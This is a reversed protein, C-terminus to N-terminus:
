SRVTKFIQRAGITLVALGIMSAGIIRKTSVVEHLFLLGLIYCIPVEATNILVGPGAKCRQLGTTLTIQSVFALLAGIVIATGDWGYDHIQAPSIAGGFFVSVICSCVALSFISTMFHFTTGLSRIITYGTAALFAALCALASGLIRNAFPVVLTATSLVDSADPRSILFAGIVALPVAGIDVIHVHERLTFYSLITTFAPCLFFIATADGVPILALANYLSIICFAGCIGRVAIMATQHRTMSFVARRVTPFPLVYALSFILHIVSRVFLTSSAPFQSVTQAHHIFLNGIGFLVATLLMLAYGLLEASRAKQAEKEDGLKEVPTVPVKTYGSPHVRTTLLPADEDIRGLSHNAFPSMTTNLAANSLSWSLVVPGLLNLSCLQLIM